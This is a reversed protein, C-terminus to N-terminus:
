NQPNTGSSAIADILTQCEARSVRGRDLLRLPGHSQRCLESVLAAIRDPPTNRWEEMLETLYAQDTVSIQKAWNPPTWIQLPGGDDLDVLLMKIAEDGFRRSFQLMVFNVLNQPM